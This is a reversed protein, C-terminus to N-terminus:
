ARIVLVYCFCRFSTFLDMTLNFRVVQLHWSSSADLFCGAQGMCVTSLESRDRLTTSRTPLETGRAPLSVIYFYVLYRYVLTPCLAKWIRIGRVGCFCGCTNLAVLCCSDRRLIRLHITTVGVVCMMSHNSCIWCGGHEIWDHYGEDLGFLLFIWFMFFEDHVWFLLVVLLMTYARRLLWCDGFRPCWGLVWDTIPATFYLRLWYVVCSNRGVKGFYDWHRLLGFGSTLWFIM